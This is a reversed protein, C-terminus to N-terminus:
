RDTNARIDVEILNSKKVMLDPFQETFRESPIREKAGGISISGKIRDDVIIPAAVARLGKLSEEDNYAVGTERVEALEDRLQDKDTITESTQQVTEMEAILQERKSKPVYALMAKGSASCYTPVPEGKSREYYMKGVSHEGYALYVQVSMEEHLTSLLATEGTQATIDDVHETGYKYIDLESRFLDGYILFRASLSYLTENQELIGIDVMTQLYTHITGKSLDIDNAIDSLSAPGINAVVDVIEWANQTSKNTREGM